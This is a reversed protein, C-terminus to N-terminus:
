VPDCILDKLIELTDEYSLENSSLTYAIREDGIPNIVSHIKSVDLIWIDKPLAIFSGISTLESEKYVVGNTQGIVQETTIIVGEKQKFFKTIANTCKIYFNIGVKRESDTHPKIYNNNISFVSGKFYQRYDKPIIELLKTEITDSIKFFEISHSEGYYVISDGYTFDILDTPVKLKVFPKM